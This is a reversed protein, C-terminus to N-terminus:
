RPPFQPSTSPPNPEALPASNPNSGYNYSRLRQGTLINARMLLLNLENEALQANSLINQSTNPEVESYVDNLLLRLVFRQAIYSIANPFPSNGYPLKMLPVRYLSRLRGNLISDVQQQYLLLNKFSVADTLKPGIGLQRCLVIIDSQPDSYYVFSDYSGSVNIFYDLTCILGESNSTPQTVVLQITDGESFNLNLPSPTTQTNGATIVLSTLSNGNQLISVVLNSAISARLFLQVDALTVARPWVYTLIANSQALTLGEYEVVYPTQYSSFSMQEVNIYDLLLLLSEGIASGSGTQVISITIVDSTNAYVSLVGTQLITNAALTLQTVALGNVYMQLIVEANAVNRLSLTYNFLGVRQTPSFNFITDGQTLEGEYRVVLPTAIRKSNTIASNDVADAVTSLFTFTLGELAMTPAVAVAVTLNDGSSFFILPIEQMGTDIGIVDVVDFITGNKLFNITMSQGDRSQVRIGTIQLDVSSIYNYLTDGTLATGEFYAILPVNIRMYIIGRETISGV